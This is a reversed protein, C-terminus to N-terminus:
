KKGAAGGGGAAAAKKPPPGFKPAQPPPPILGIRSLLFTVRDSPQAGVSVWYRRRLPWSPPTLM